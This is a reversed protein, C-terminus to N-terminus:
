VAYSWLREVLEAMGQNRVLQREGIPLFCAQLSCAHVSLQQENVAGSFSSVLLVPLHQRAQSVREAAAVLRPIRLHRVCIARLIRRPAVPYSTFESLKIAPDNEDPMRQPSRDQQLVDGFRSRHYGYGPHEQDRWGVPADFTPLNALINQLFVKRRLDGSAQRQEEVVAAVTLPHRECVEREVLFLKRPCAEALEISASM